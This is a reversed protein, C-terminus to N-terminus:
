DTLPATPDPMTAGEFWESPVPADRRSAHVPLRLPRCHVEAPDRGPSM